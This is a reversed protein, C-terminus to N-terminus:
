AAPAKREALYRDLGEQWPPLEVAGERESRLVSYAPRRAPRPQEETTCPRVERGVGARRFIERAFEFRSCEGGGAVHHVGYAATAAITVLAEALHGTYTPCGVQDRVVSVEDRRGALALMTEVFNPGHPGFLWSSRVVHHRPNADATAREGALKSRGYSSLPATPDSEVYPSRKAGDFVYDSSVYLIGAGAGATAAAVNAAGQGNVRLAAEAEEEAGDVNTYAACNVVTDPRAAGIAERSTAADTVDLDARSLAVVDHGAQAAARAVDRGLMGAAGCVV